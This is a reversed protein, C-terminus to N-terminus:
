AYNVIGIQQVVTILKIEMGPFGTVVPDAYGDRFLSGM